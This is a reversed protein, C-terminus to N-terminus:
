SSSIFQESLRIHRSIRPPKLLKHAFLSFQFGDYAGEAPMLTCRRIRRICQLHQLMFIVIIHPLHQFALKSLRLLLDGIRLLFQLDEKEGFVGIIVFIDDHLDPCADSAVLRREKRRIEVPHVAIVRDALPPAGLKCGVVFVPDATELLDSKDNVPM